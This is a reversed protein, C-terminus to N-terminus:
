NKVVNTEGSSQRLTMVHCSAEQLNLPFSLSSSFMKQKKRNLLSPVWMGDNKGKYRGSTFSKKKEEATVKQWAGYWVRCTSATCLIMHAWLYFSTVSEQRRNVVGEQTKM